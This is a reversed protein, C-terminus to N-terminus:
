EGQTRTLPRPVLTRRRPTPPTLTAVQQTAQGGLITGAWTAFTPLAQAPLPVYEVQVPEPPPMGSRQGRFISCYHRVADNANLPYADGNSVVYAEINVVVSPCIHVVPQIRVPLVAALAPVAVSLAREPDKEHRARDLFEETLNLIRRIARIALKKDSFTPLVRIELTKHLTHCFNVIGYRNDHYDGSAGGRHMAALDGHFVDQAFLNCGRIRPWFVHDKPLKQALGWRHLGLLMHDHYAKNMLRQYDLEHRFSMHVHIGCTRNTVDPYHDRVWTWLAPRILAPSAVEGIAALGTASPFRVSPDSKIQTKDAFFPPPEAARPVMQEPLPIENHRVQSTIFVIYGPFIWGRGLGQVPNHILVQFRRDGDAYAVRARQRIADLDSPSWVLQPTPPADAVAPAPRPKWAGELEVGIKQIRFKFRPVGQKDPLLGSTNRSTADM